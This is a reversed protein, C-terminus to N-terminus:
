EIPQSVSVRQTRRRVYEVTCGPVDTVFNVPFM